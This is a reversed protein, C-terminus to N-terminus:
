INRKFSKLDVEFKFGELRFNKIPKMSAKEWALM